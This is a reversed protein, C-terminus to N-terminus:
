NFGVIPHFNSRKWVNNLVILRLLQKNEIFIIKISNVINTLM